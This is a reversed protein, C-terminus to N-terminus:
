ELLVPEYPSKEIAKEVIFNNRKLWEILEEETHGELSKSFPSGANIIIGNELTASSGFTKQKNTFRYRTKV